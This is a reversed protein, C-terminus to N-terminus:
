PSLPASWILSSFEIGAVRVVVTLPPVPFLVISPPGLLSKMEVATPLALLVILPM